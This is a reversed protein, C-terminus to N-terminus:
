LFRLASLADDLKSKDRSRSIKDWGRAKIGPRPNRKDVHSFGGAGGGSACRGVATKAKFDPTMQAYRVSTGFSLWIWKKRGHQPGAMRIEAFLRQGRDMKGVIPVFTPKENEWGSTVADRRKASFRFIRQLDQEVNASMASVRTSEPIPGKVLRVTVRNM